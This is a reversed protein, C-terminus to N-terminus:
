VRERSAFCLLKALVNDRDSCSAKHCIRSWHTRVTRYACDLSAAIEKDSKGQAALSMVERERASLRNHESFDATIARATGDSSGASDPSSRFPSNSLHTQEPESRDEAEVRGGVEVPLDQMGLESSGRAVASAEANRVFKTLQRINGPWSLCCLLRTVAPGLRLDTKLLSKALVSIDERRCSLPPLNLVQFPEVVQESTSAIAGSRWPETSTTAVVSPGASGGSNVLGRQSQSKSAFIRDRLSVPLAQLEQLVLTTGADCCSMTRVLRQEAEAPEMGRFDKCDVEVIRGGRGMREHIARAYHRKGAGAPGRLLVPIRKRALGAMCQHVEALMACRTPIELFPRRQEEILNALEEDSLSQLILGHSGIFVMAGVAATRSAGRIREGDVITGNTSGLDVIEFYGQRAFVRAHDRSVSQDDSLRLIRGIQSQPDRGVELVEDFRVVGSTTGQAARVPDLLLAVPVRQNKLNQPGEAILETWSYEISMTTKLSQNV